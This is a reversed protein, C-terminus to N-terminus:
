RHMEVLINNQQMMRPAIAIYAITATKPQNLSLECDM